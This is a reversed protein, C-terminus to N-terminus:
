RYSPSRVKFKRGKMARCYTQEMAHMFITEDDGLLAHQCKNTKPSELYGSLTNESDAQSASMANKLM